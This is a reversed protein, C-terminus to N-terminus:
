GALFVIGSLPAVVNGFGFTFCVSGDEHSVNVRGPVGGSGNQTTNAFGENQAPRYGSPLSFVCNSTGEHAEGRLHVFGDRDKLFSVPPNGIITGFTSWGNEFPPEGPEGVIHWHEPAAIRPNPYNGILDGGAPGTSPGQPGATGNTGNTGNTGSSGNAGPRGMQDLLLTSTGRPCKKGSRVVTLSGHKGVCAQVAGNSRVFGGTAAFAGGGLAVFLALSSVVNAYASRPRRPLLFM